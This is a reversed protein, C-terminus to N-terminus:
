LVARAETFRTALGYANALRLLSPGTNGAERTQLQVIAVLDDYRKTEYYARVLATSNVTTTGLKEMLFAKGGALDGALIDGAAASAALEPFSPALDYAAHFVARAETPKGASALLNAKQLYFSQKKPSLAIAENVQELAKDYQGGTEYILAYQARLRADLPAREVEKGMESIAFRVFEDKLQNSASPNAAVSNAYSVLQERIEQTGYSGDAVAKKFYDLNAQPGGPIGSIAHVLDGAARMSPINVALVLAIGVVLMIPAVTNLETTGLVPLRDIQKFPRSSAVHAMALIAALPIYTFLNDFVFLAQFAYAAIAGTLFIREARSVESRYLALVASVLLGIFLLFAPIGGSVLWDVFVNHAR